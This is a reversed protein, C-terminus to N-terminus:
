KNVIKDCLFSMFQKRYKNHGGKADIVAQMHRPMAKYLNNLYDPTIGKWVKCAIKKHGKASIAQKKQM